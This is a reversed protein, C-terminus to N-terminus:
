SKVELTQKLIVKLTISNLGIYALYFYDYSSIITKDEINKLILSKWKDFLDNKDVKKTM